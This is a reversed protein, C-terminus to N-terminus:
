RLNTPRPFSSKLLTTRTQTIQARTPERCSSWTPKAWSWRLRRAPGRIVAPRRTSWETLLLIVGHCWFWWRQCRVQIHRTALQPKREPTESSCLEASAVEPDRQHKSTGDEGKSIHTKLFWWWVFSFQTNKELRTALPDKKSQSKLRAQNYQNNFEVGQNIITTM